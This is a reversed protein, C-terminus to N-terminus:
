WPLKTIIWPLAKQFLWTVVAGGIGGFLSCITCASNSTAPTVTLLQGASIVAADNGHTVRIRLRYLGAPLAPLTATRATGNLTEINAWANPGYQIQLNIRSGASLNRISYTLQPHVGSVVSERAFSFTVPPRIMTSAQAAAPTALVAISLAIALLVLKRVSRGADNRGPRPSRRGLRDTRYRIRATHLNETFCNETPRDTNSDLPVLARALSLRPVARLRPSGARCDSTAPSAELAGIDDIADRPFTATPM